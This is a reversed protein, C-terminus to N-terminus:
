EAPAPLTHGCASCVLGKKGAQTLMGGCQPCPQAVPRNWSAFDCKPYKNCGYFIRGRKTKREVIEGGCKPCPVGVKTQLPQTTRCTPYNSCAIFKGFRGWKIVMKSGCSPCTLGPDEEKIEVKPMAQEATKVTQEFPGYFASLLAVWDQEGEAIRDLDAEMQATFDYDLIAPFHEVLLDNVTLGTETPRLARDLREVYGRSQITSLTPAYTSPRGIGLAELAQVLTAETYRPPPQTFHQKPLLDLLDLWEGAALPPLTMEAEAEERLDPYVALYGPFRLTSGTARLGYRWGQTAQRLAPEPLTEGVALRLPEKPAGALIDATMTDYIAPNMQSAVFRRWILEYLRQQDGDLYPAVQEPTRLTSTPRIAEHAEQAKKARTKYEPPTAPLYAEGFAQQIYGRAEAQAEAAVNVSDTRMYTILGVTGEAIKVGEYLGQAVAMTRKATFGLRRNAEQQLTSTIFPAGPRRVRQGSKVREVLYAARELERVAALADTENKLEAEQGDLRALKALFGVRPDPPSAHRQDLEAEISWYEVPVFAQIEREREVVLRVAVSQVRGASLRGRVKRWLLPSLRYGVLRDLVRRAQQANVLDMDLDRAHAFGEQVASPTIEHFVVRRYRAPALGLAAAVHWAIAEGERDPDTALYVEGADKAAERLEGVTKFKDRPIVYQPAFGAEVDVGLKSKPLDRVHGVSAKVAYARGLFRGITRAKAPSEVIVLKKGAGGGPADSAPAEGAEGSASARRPASKPKAAKPAPTEKPARAPKPLGEHAPTAGMRTLKTGCVACPGQTAPVGGSTYVPQPASMERKQRCKVCYAIIPEDPM